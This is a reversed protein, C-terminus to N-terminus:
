DKLGLFKKVQNYDNWNINNSKGNVSAPTSTTGGPIIIYRFQNYHNGSYTFSSEDLTSAIIILQTAFYANITGGTIFADSIPLPLIIQSKASDSGWNFYVKIDGKNLISDVLKPAPIQAVWGSDDSGQFTVNLWPSYIVNATGQAGQSGTSGTPGAPGQSGAAGTEGAPGKSCSAIILTITFLLVNFITFLRQKM